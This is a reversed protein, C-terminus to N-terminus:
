RLTPANMATGKFPEPPPGSCGVQPRGTQCSNGATAPLRQRDTGPQRAFRGNEDCPQNPRPSQGYDTSDPSRRGVVGDATAPVSIYFDTSLGGPRDGANIREAVLACPEPRLGADATIGAWGAATMHLDSQGDDGHDLFQM